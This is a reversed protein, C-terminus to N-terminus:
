FSYIELEQIYIFHKRNETLLKKYSNTLVISAILCDFIDIENGKGKLQMHLKAAYSASKQDLSFVELQSIFDKLESILKTFGEKSIKKKLFKLKYIGHYLEFVSPS